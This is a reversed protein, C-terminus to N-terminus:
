KESEGVWHSILHSSSISYFALNAEASLAMALRTKGTGAPGYLLVSTWPSRAGLLLRISLVLGKMTKDVYLNCLDRVSIWSVLRIAVHEYNLRSQNAALLSRSRVYIGNVVFM